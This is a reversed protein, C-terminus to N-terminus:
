RSLEDSIAQGIASQVRSLDAHDEVGTYGLFGDLIPTSPPKPLEIRRGYAPHVGSGDQLETLPEGEVVVASVRSEHEKLYANVSGSVGSAKAASKIASDSIGESNITIADGGTAISSLAALRGGHSHGVFLMDKGPNAQKLKLSLAIAQRDQDTTATIGDINGMWDVGDKTGPYAVIIQGDPGFYVEADFGTRSDHLMSQTIGMVKLQDVSARKYLFGSPLGLDGAADGILSIAQSAQTLDIRRQSVDPSHAWGWRDTIYDKGGGTVTKGGSGTSSSTKGDDRSTKEQADANDRLVKAQATLAGRANGIGVRHEEWTARFKVAVPGVWFSSQVGRTVTSTVTELEKEAAEFAQAVRRLEVVDAGYFNANM